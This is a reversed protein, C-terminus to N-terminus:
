ILEAFHPPCLVGCNLYDYAKWLKETYIPRSVYSETTQPNYFVVRGEGEALPQPM